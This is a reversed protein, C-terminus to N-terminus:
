SKEKTSRRLHLDKTAEEFSETTFQKREWFAEVEAEVKQQYYNVLLRKIDALEQEGMGEDFLTLLHHQVPNLTTAVDM